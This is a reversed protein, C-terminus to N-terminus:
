QRPAGTISNYLPGDGIANRREPSQDHPVGVTVTGTCVGGRGDNGSFNIYYVRGNGPVQPSGAREARLDVKNAGRKRADPATDGDAIGNIPEDQFISDITLLVPNGEPDRGGTLTVTVFKHNPPWLSTVNPQAECVPASNFVTVTFTRTTSNHHADTAVCTVPTVGIAFLSGGAPVCGVPVTGDVIDTATFAFPVVAGAAGTAPMVLNAVTFAPPTTDVVNVRFTGNVTAGAKDTVSCVVPTSGIAFM